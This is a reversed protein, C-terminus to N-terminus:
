TPIRAADAYIGAPAGGTLVARLSGPPVEFLAMGAATLSVVSGAPTVAAVWAGSTALYELTATTGGFTGGIVFAGRGGCWPKPAGSGTASVNSLLISSFSNM